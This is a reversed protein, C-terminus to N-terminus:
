GVLVRGRILRELALGGFVSCLGWAVLYTKNLILSGYGPYYASRMWEVAHLLPNFSLYYRAAEPLSDPVFLIGSAAYLVILILVYGTWWARFAAAIITNIIGMGAGFLIAACLAYGAQVVDVPIFDVGAFWLIVLLSIATICSGLIELLVRALVLDLIRVVPFNLLQRDLMVGLMTWRSIYNFAIFPMLGTAFFLIASDGVPAVRGGLTSIALLILVHALPWGVSAVLFGLSHGFFRSRTGRLMLALIVRGQERLVDGLPASRGELQLM